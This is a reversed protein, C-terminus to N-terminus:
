RVLQPRHIALPAKDAYWAELDDASMPADSFHEYAEAPHSWLSTKRGNFTFCQGNMHDAAPSALWVVIEAVEQPQGFGVQAASPPAEGRERAAAGARDMVVQTMDTEAIPWLANTRIGQRTLELVCTRLLGLMGEKAAAYNAQGFGGALGSGSTVLLIQGHGQEKMARGAERACLFAGRLHVAIVDDWEEVSMKLLTRDRVIGANHVMLDLGGFQEVATAVLRECVAEEAVSGRVAAVQGGAARIEAEVEALAAESTGNIVVAAGEAALRTAFARGLGRSSGTIAVTRGTLRAM